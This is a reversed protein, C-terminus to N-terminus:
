ELDIPRSSTRNRALLQDIEQDTLAGQVRVSVDILEQGTGRQSQESIVKVERALVEQAYDTLSVGKAKAQELLGREIEPQLDLTIIM